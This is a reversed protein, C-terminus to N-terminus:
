KNSNSGPDPTSPQEPPSYDEFAFREALVTLNKEPLKYNSGIIVARDDDATVRRNMDATQQRLVNKDEADIKGGDKRRLVYIFRFDASRVDNLEKEFTTRPREGNSPPPTEKGSSLIKDNAACASSLVLGLSIFAALVYRSRPPILKDRLPMKTGRTENM